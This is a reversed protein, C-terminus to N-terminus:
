DGNIHEELRQQLQVADPRDEPEGAWCQCMLRYLSVPCKEPQELRAGRKLLRVLQGCDPRYVRPYRPEEGFTAIEWLLVGFSWVDSHSTFEGDRLSELAMWKLPLLDDQGLHTTHVYVTNAYVDRALGFDALKAVGDETILVNRAAVDRHVIKLSELEHLARSVHVAFRLLDSLRTDPDQRCGRLFHLLDGRPAYELLIRRPLSQTIIGHLQVINPHVRQDDGERHVSQNHLSILIDVERYFDRYCRERGDGSEHALSISKAAVLVPQKGPRRLQALVVHGFTGQGIMKAVTLHEEHREWPLRLNEDAVEEEEVATLLEQLLIGEEQQRLPHKWFNKQRLAIRALVVVVVLVPIVLVALLQLNHSEPQIPLRTCDQGIWPAQCFCTGNIHDCVGSNQCACVSSCNWGYHGHRCPRDCYKGVWGPLCVCGSWRECRGENECDCTRNCFMGYLNPPCSTVNLILEKEVVVRTGTTEAVCTYVGNYHDRFANITFEIVTTQNSLVESTTTHFPRYKLVMSSVNFHVATCSLTVNSGIYIHQRPVTVIAVARTPIDCAVGIWGPPCLCAGNFGHCRAGNKCVCDQDCWPGFKGRACGLKDVTYQASYTTKQKLIHIYIPTLDCKIMAPSSTQYSDIHYVWFYGFGGDNLWEPKILHNKVLNQFGDDPGTRSLLQAQVAMGTQSTSCHFRAGSDSAINAWGIDTLSNLTGVVTVGCADNDTRVLLTEKIKSSPGQLDSTHIWGTDYRSIYNSVNLLRQPSGEREPTECTTNYLPPYGEVDTIDIKIAYIESSTQCPQDHIDTCKLLVVLDYRPRVRFDLPNAVRLAAQSGNPSITFRGYPDGDVIQVSFRKDKSSLTPTINAVVTGVPINEPITLNFTQASTNFVVSDWASPTGSVPLIPSGLTLWMIIAIIMNDDTINKVPGVNCM